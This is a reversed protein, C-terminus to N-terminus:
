AKMAWYVVIWLPNFVTLVIARRRFSVKRTKHRLGEMAIWAGLPGCAFLLLLLFDESIRRWYRRNRSRRQGQIGGSDKKNTVGAFWWALFKDFAYVTAVITNWGVFIKCYTFLSVMKLNM